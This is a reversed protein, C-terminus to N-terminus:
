GFRVHEKGWDGLKHLTGYDYGDLYDVGIQLDAAKCGTYISQHTVGNSDLWRMTISRYHNRVCDLKSHPCTTKLLIKDDNNPKIDPNIYVVWAGSVNSVLFRKNIGVQNAALVNLHNQKATALLGDIEEKTPWSEPNVEQTKTWLINDNFSVLEM